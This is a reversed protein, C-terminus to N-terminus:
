PDKGRAMQMITKSVRYSEESLTILGDYLGRSVCLVLLCLPMIM